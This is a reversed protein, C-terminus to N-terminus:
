PNKYSKREKGNRNAGKCNSFYIFTGKQSYLIFDIYYNISTYIYVCVCIFCKQQHYLDSYLM